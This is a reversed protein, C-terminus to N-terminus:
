FLFLLLKARMTVFLVSMWLVFFLASEGRRGTLGRAKEKSEMSPVSNRSTHAAKKSLPYIGCKCEPGIHQITNM